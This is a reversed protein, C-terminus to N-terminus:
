SRPTSPSVSAQPVPTVAAAKTAGLATSETCWARRVPVGLLDAQMQLLLDAKTMGGDVQLREVRLEPADARVGRAALLLLALCWRVVAHTRGAHM